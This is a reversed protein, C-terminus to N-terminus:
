NGLARRISDRRQWDAITHLDSDSCTVSVCRQGTLHHKTMKLNLRVCPLPIPGDPGREKLKIIESDDPPGAVDVVPEALGLIFSEVQKKVDRESRLLWEVPKPALLGISM